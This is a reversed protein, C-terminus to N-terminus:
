QRPKEIRHASVSEVRVASTSPKLRLNGGYTAVIPDNGVPLAATVLVATGRRVQATGLITAGSMFTVTGRATGKVKGMIKVKVTLKVPQGVVAM